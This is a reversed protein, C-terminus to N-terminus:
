WNEVAKRFIEDVIQENISTIVQDQAQNLDSTGADYSDFKALSVKWNEKSDQRNTFDVTVHITIRTKATTENGTPAVGKVVYNSIKGNIELDGNADVLLLNTESLFKDKLMETLSQSLTPVVFSAHNPFYNITITKIDPSISAGSFSYWGCSYVVATILLLSLYYKISRSFMLIM